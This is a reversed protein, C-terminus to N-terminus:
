ARPAISLFPPAAGREPEAADANRRVLINNEEHGAKRLM